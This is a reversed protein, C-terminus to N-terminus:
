LNFGEKVKAELWTYSVYPKIDEPETNSMLTCHPVHILQEETRLLLSILQM